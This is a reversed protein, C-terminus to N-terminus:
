RRLWIPNTFAFPQLPMHPLVAELTRTGRALVVVFSPNDPVPVDLDAEYRITDRRAEDLTRGDDGLVMPRSVIPITRLSKTGLMVELETVDVWPAARVRVHLTASGERVIATDGPRAGGISVDLIPGSTAFAHGAKVSSVLAETDIPKGTDGAQEPPLAVFTRPYGAWQYQIRHSDSDGTGVYRHGAELLRLWDRLVSDIRARNTAEFGNYIELADFDSRYEGREAKGTKTDLGVLDFYGLTGMRPHNVQLIRRPDGGRAKAFIEKLSTKRYPPPKPDDYPYVNFHGRRPESTTIEVGPVWALEGTLGQAELAAGYHGVVNHESPVAFDVGAAVLSLVRDEPLVPTDFSPRAHVHFDCSVLGTSDVVHRLALDLAQSSGPPVDLTREDADYELGKTALIRYRGTPLTVVAAGHLADILPGAGSARYDPGFNPDATPPVGHVVIRATLPQRTDRDLVRVRLEGGPLVALDVPAPDDPWRTVIPSAPMEAATAYFGLIEHPAEVEFRGDPEPYLHVVPRADPGMAFVQLPAAGDIVRGVVKRLAEGRLRGVLGNAATASPAVAVLVTAARETEPTSVTTVLPSGAVEDSGPAVHVGFDGSPAVLAAARERDDLILASGRADGLDAVIGAGRVFATHQGVPTAAYLAIRHAAADTSRLAIALVSPARSLGYSLEAPIAGFSGTLQVTATAHAPGHPNARLATARITAPAGDVTAGLAVGDLLVGKADRVEVLSGIEVGPEAHGAVVFTAEDTALRVDGNATTELTGADIRLPEGVRRPAGLLILLLVAAGVAAVLSSARIM